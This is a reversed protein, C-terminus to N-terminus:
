RGSGMLSFYKRVSAVGAKRWGERVDDPQAYYNPLKDGTYKSVGGLDDSYADYACEGLAERLVDNNLSVDLRVGFFVLPDEREM